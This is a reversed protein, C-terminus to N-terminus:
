EKELFFFRDHGAWDKELKQHVWPSKQFLLNIAHGQTSAIEFAVEAGPNLFTPLEHALREYFETGQKGAVLALKPEFNKVESDLQDYEIESIYPPNCIIYDAKRGHFPHLLDGKLLEVEVSNDKANQEAIKLALPCIDSLVVSLEPFRKKLAIGICGTGCCLDWLIKGKLVRKEWKRVLLDVLIETEQRPILVDPSLHISCGFFKTEGKIYQTPEGRGRRRIAERCQDLEQQTLPKEFDVYLRLRDLKLADCLLNEAERRSNAIGKEKLYESSLSLISLISKM